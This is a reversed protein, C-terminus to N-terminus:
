RTDPWAADVQGSVTMEGVRCARLVEDPGEGITEMGEPRPRVVIVRSTRGSDSANPLISHLLSRSTRECVPRDTAMFFYGTIALQHVRQHGSLYGTKAVLFYGGRVGQSRPCRTVDDLKM